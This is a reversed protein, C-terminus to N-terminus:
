FSHFKSDGTIAGITFGGTYFVPYYASASYLWAVANNNLM